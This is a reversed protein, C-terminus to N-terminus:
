GHEFSDEWLLRNDKAYVKFKPPDTIKAFRWISCINGKNDKLNLIISGQGGEITYAEIVTTYPNGNLTNFHFYGMIGFVIIIWSGAFVTLGIGAWSRRRLLMVGQALLAIGIFMVIHQFSQMNQMEGPFRNLSFETRGIFGLCLLGSVFALIIGSVKRRRHLLFLSIIFLVVATALVLKGILEIYEIPIM